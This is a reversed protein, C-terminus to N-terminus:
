GRALHNAQTCFPGVEWLFLDPSSGIKKQPLLSRQVCAVPLLIKQNGDYIDYKKYYCLLLGLPYYGTM